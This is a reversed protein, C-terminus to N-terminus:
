LLRRLRSRLKGLLLFRFAERSSYGRTFLHTTRSFTTCRLDFRRALEQLSRKSYLSIHGNRPAAYWWGLGLGAVSIDDVVHTGVLVALKSKSALRVIEGLFNVPDHSHEAVEFASCFNYREVFGDTLLSVGFPDYTDYRYGVERLLAATKGNGGGYDLGIVEDKHASLLCDVAICNGRPRVDAYDPDLTLYYEANYVYATWQRATFSDCFTTFIFSCRECRLYYVPIAALKTPHRPHSCTRAFDVVDFLHTSAGCIKCAPSPEDRLRQLEIAAHESLSPMPGREDLQIPTTM